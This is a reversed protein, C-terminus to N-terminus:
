EAPPLGAIKEISSMGEPAVDRLIDLFNMVLLRQARRILLPAPNAPEHRELYACVRDLERVADERSRIEAFRSGGSGEVSGGQAAGSGARSGADPLSEGGASGALGDGPPLAAPSAEGVAEAHFAALPRLRQLLPGLDAAQHMGAKEILVSRLASATEFARQAENRGGAAAHSRVLGTLQARTIPATQGEPLRVIGLAIEADRFSCGGAMSSQVFSVNGLDRLLGVPDTLGALANMRMFPDNPEDPDLQPHVQEWCRVLLQRILELVNTLGPLGETVLQARALLVAIRLDRSRNLLALAKAQVQRWDPDQAPVLTVGFQQEPKGRATIELDAFAPDYDLADGCPSEASLDRALSEFDVL